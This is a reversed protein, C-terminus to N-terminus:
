LTQERSFANLYHPTIILFIIHTAIAFSEHKLIEELVM